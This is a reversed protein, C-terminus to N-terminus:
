CGAYRSQSGNSHTQSMQLSNNASVGVCVHLLVCKRSVRSHLRHRQFKNGPTFCFLSFQTHTNTRAHARMHTLNGHLSQASTKVASHILSLFPERSWGAFVPLTFSQIHESALHLSRSSFCTNVNKTGPHLSPYVCIVTMTFFFLGQILTWGCRPTM